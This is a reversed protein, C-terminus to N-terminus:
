GLGKSPKRLVATFENTGTPEHAEEVVLDTYGLAGLHRVIEQFSSPTFQWAHVDIYAGDSGEWLAVAQKVRNLLKTEFDEDFSDGIWHRAPENHTTLALHEIVSTLSHVKRKEVHAAVVEALNSVDIGADFCYRKDPIILFYRGDDRLLRSVAQLHNILDPQHEICHSSLVADYEQNIISLDGVPSVFNINPVHKIPYGTAKARSILGNHDLIDFYSVHEGILVPNCFPGIELVSNAQLARMALGMRNSADVHYKRGEARGFEIFHTSPDVKADAVDPNLRLYVDADFDIPLKNRM